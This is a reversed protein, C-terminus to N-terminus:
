IGSLKIAEGTWASEDIALTVEVTRRGEILSTHASPSGTALHDLWSRTEEGLPGWYGGLAWNGSANSTLFVSELGHGPVYAHPFGEETFLFNEKHDEDLIMAGKEGLVEVRVLRGHTPYKAPLAYFPGVPNEKGPGASPSIM